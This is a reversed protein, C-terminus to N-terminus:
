RSRRLTNKFNEFSFTSQEQIINHMKKFNRAQILAQYQQLNGFYKLFIDLNNQYFKAQGKM